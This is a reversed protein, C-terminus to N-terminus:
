CLTDKEIISNNAFSQFWRTTCLRQDDSWSRTIAALQKLSLIREHETWFHYIDRSTKEHRVIEVRRLTRPLYSGPENFQTATVDVIYGGVVVFIHEYDYGHYIAIRHSIGEKSLLHSLYGSAIGCYGRMSASVNYMESREAMEGSELWTRTQQALSCLKKYFISM